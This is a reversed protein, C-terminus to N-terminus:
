SVTRRRRIDKGAEVAVIWFECYGDLLYQKRPVLCKLIKAAFLAKGIVM